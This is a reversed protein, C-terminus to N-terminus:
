RKRWNIAKAIEHRREEPARLLTVEKQLEAWDSSTVDAM